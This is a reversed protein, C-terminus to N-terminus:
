KYGCFVFKSTNKAEAALFECSRLLAVSSTQWRLGVWPCRTGTGPVGVACVCVCVCVCGM